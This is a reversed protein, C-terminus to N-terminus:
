KYFEPRAQMRRGFESNAVDKAKEEIIVLM